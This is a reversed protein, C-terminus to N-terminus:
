DEDHDHRTRGRHKKDGHESDNESAENEGLRLTAGTLPVRVTSAASDYGRFLATSWAGIVLVVLLGWMPSVSQLAGDAPAIKRGSIMAVGINERCTITHVAIGILHAVIVGLLAYAAVAHVDELAEGGTGIGTLVVVPVLAFMALAALASGPNNGAFEPRQADNFVVARFYSVVSRPRLPFSTFRASHSGVVGLVIRIVLVFVAVLGFLMHLRFAPSDDGVALAIVLSATLSLAFM